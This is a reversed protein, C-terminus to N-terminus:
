LPTMEVSGPSIVPVRRGHGLMSGCWVGDRSLDALHFSGLVVLTAEDLTTEDCMFVNLELSPLAPRETSMARVGDTSSRVVTSFGKGGNAAADFLDKSSVFSRGVKDRLALHLQVEEDLAVAM